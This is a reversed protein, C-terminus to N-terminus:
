LLLLPLLLALVPALWDHTRGGKRTATCYRAEAEGLTRATTNSTPPTSTSEGMCASHAYSRSRPRGRLEMLRTIAVPPCVTPQLVSSSRSSRVASTASHYPAKACSSSPFSDTSSNTSGNWASHRHAVSAM